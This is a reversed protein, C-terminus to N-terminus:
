SDDNLLDTGHRAHNQLAMAVGVHFVREGMESLGQGQSELGGASELMPLWLELTLITAFISNFMGFRRNQAWFDDFHNESGLGVSVCSM